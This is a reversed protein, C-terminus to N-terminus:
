PTEGGKRQKNKLAQLIDAVNDQTTINPYQQEFEVLLKKAAQEESQITRYVQEFNGHAFADQIFIRSDEPFDEWGGYLDDVAKDIQALTLPAGKQEHAALIGIVDSLDHKYKRGARLKMAILYEAEIVRVTLVQAFTKYYTAHRYLRPTYSTTRMFDHNFWDDGFGHRQGVRRAADLLAEPLQGCADIDASMTRFDYRGLIAAGGVLIIEIPMKRGGCKKYEKALENLYADLASKEISTTNEPSM